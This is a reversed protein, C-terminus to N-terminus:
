ASCSGTMVSHSVFRTYRGLRLLAAIIMAIGAILTLVVMAASRDAPAVDTLVSGAALASASTTTIVMLRTSTGIGGFFRGALSAYLGHVPSVGALLGAAMGDPVGGIAGPIGAVVDHKRM